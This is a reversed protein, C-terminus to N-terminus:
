GSSKARPKSLRRANAKVRTHFPKAAAAASVTTLGGMLAAPSRFARPDVMLRAAALSAAQASETVAAAKEAVMRHREAASMTGTVLQPVRVGLTLWM